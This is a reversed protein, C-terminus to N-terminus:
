EKGHDNDVSAPVFDFVERLIAGPLAEIADLDKDAAKQMKEIETLKHDIESVIRIQDDITPPFPFHLKKVIDTNLGQMVAGHSECGLQRYVPSLYSLIWAIFNPYTDPNVSIKLLHSSIISKRIGHPVVVCRGITGMTTMLVDCPRVEFGKLQEFKEDTIFKLGADEFRKNIVHEIGLVLVGDTVLEDKHLQSGFPGMRIPNKTSSDLVDLTRVWKWGAPLEDGEEWPFVERLIAGQMASVAEKRRLAAQLMKEAEVMKGELQTAIRIQDDITPPLLIEFHQIQEKTIEGFTNVHVDKLIDPIITRIAFYLYLPTIDDKPVFSKFGQNTCLPKRTIALNGVPARSTLLVTDVPLLKTSCSDLGAKTIKRETDEIYISQLNGVDAPTAWLIDGNWYQPEDTSPTAGNVIEAIGNKGGLKAWRWGTPLKCKENDKM